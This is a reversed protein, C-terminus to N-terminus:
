PKATAPPGAPAPPPFVKGWEERTLADKLQFRLAFSKEVVATEQPEFGKYAAQLEEMTAGRRAGLPELTKEFAKREKQSQKGVDEMQKLVALAQERRAPDPVFTKVQKITVDLSQTFPMKSGGFLLFLAALTAIVM